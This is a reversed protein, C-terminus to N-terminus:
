AEHLTLADHDANEEWEHRKMVGWSAEHRKMFRRGIIHLMSKKEFVLVAFDM